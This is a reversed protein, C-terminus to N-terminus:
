EWYSEWKDAYMAKLKERYHNTKIKCMWLDHGSGGKFVVGENLPTELTNERVQNIFGETLRGTYVIKPIHLAGFENVFERPSIIGRKHIAIDFLIVDRTADDSKHQGAFSKEGEFEAFATYSEANRWVKNDRVIKSIAESYKNMFLSVAIGFVEHKEDFLQHRTGFKNFGKKRNWEFRLNSGDHKFFAIGDDKPSQAPGPISPYEKM